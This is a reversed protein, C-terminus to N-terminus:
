WGAIPVSLETRQASSAEAAFVVAMIHRAFEGTVPVEEDNNIADRFGVWEHILADQMWNDDNRESIVQWKDGRGLLVIGEYDITLMGRTCTLETLHKPAGQRYGVSVVTGTAGGAFRLFILGADDSQQDHFRTSLQASVREVPQDVLWVLRDLAHIGVTMWVGGGQARDLHWAQRNEYTWDKSMTSLGLVIEGLEGSALLEKAKRYSPVFHNVHGLMLRVGAKRTAEIMQTCEELNPAMPKELLIHKGANSAELVINTHLHHPTAIVVANVNSDALLDRYDTYGVGGYQKTFANLAEANTRSAATVRVDELDAIARAHEEGYLGAGIIGVNLM